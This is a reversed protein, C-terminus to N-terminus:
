QCLKVGKHKYEALEETDMELGTIRSKNTNVDKNDSIATSSCDSKKKSLRYLPHTGTVYALAM